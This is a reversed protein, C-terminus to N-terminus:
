IDLPAFSKPMPASFGATARTRRAAELRSVRLNRFGRRINRILLLRLLTQMHLTELLVIM